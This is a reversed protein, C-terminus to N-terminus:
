AAASSFLRSTGGERRTGSRSPTSGSSRPLRWATQREPLLLEAIATTLGRRRFHDEVIVTMAASEIAALVVAEDLPEVM